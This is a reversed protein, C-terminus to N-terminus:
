EAADMEAALQELWAEIASTQLAARVAPWAARAWADFPLDVPEGALREVAARASEDAADEYVRDLTAEIEETVAPSTAWVRGLEEGLADLDSLVDDSVPAVLERGSSALWFRLLSVRGELNVETDLHRVAFDAARELARRSGAEVYRRIEPELRGEIEHVVRDVISSGLKAFRGLIGPLINALTRPIITSFDRLSRYLTDAVLEEAGRQSFVHRVWPEPVLGPRRVLRVLIEEVTEDVFRGVPAEDGRRTEVASRLAAAIGRGLARGREPTRHAEILARATARPLLEPWPRDYREELAAAVVRAWDEEAQEGTLRQKLWDARAEPTV